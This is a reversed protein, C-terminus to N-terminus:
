AVRLLRNALDVFTREGWPNPWDIGSETHVVWQRSSDRLLMVRFLSPWVSLDVRGEAGGVFRAIPELLLEGQPADIALAAVKYTGIEDETVERESQTVSWGQQQAWDRVQAVLEDIASLWEDRIKAGEALTLKPKQMRRDYWTSASLFTRRHLPLSSSLACLV